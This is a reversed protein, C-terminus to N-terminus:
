RSGQSTKKRMMMKMTMMATRLIMMSRTVKVRRNTEKEKRITM